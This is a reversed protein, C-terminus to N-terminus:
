LALHEDKGTLEELERSFICAGSGKGKSQTGKSCKRGARRATWM